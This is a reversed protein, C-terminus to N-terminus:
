DEIGLKKAIQKYNPEIGQAELKECEAGTQKHVAGRMMDVEYLPGNIAKIKERIALERPKVEALYSKLEAALRDRETVLPERMEELTKIVKNRM